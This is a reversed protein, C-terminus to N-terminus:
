IEKYEEASIELCKKILKDRDREEIKTFMIVHHNKELSDDRLIIGKAKVSHIQEPFYILCDITQGQKFDYESYFRIGGGGIDLTHTIINGGNQEIIVKTNLDARLYKRRQIEKIYDEVFEIIFEGELPSNLIVANFMKIGSPTFIKVNVDNGEELYDAYDLTERTFNLSIRDQYVKKISCNLEKESGEATHFLLKTPQNERIVGMYYMTFLLQLFHLNNVPPLHKSLNLLTRM